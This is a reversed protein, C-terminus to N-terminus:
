LPCVRTNRRALVMAHDLSVVPAMAAAQEDTRMKRLQGLNTNPKTSQFPQNQQRQLKQFEEWADASVDELAAPLTARLHTLSQKDPKKTSM